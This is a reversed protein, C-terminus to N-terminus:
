RGSEEFIRAVQRIFIIGAVGMGVLLGIVAFLPSTKALGDLWRGGVVGGAVLLAATLGFSTALGLAKWSSRDL